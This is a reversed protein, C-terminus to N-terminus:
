AAGSGYRTPNPNEQQQLFRLRAQQLNGQILEDGPNLRDARELDEVARRYEGLCLHAYGRCNYAEAYQPDLALARNFDAIARGHDGM